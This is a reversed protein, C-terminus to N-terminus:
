MHFFLIEDLCAYYEYDECVYLDCLERRLVLERVHERIDRSTLSDTLLQRPAHRFWDRYVAEYDSARTIYHNNVTTPYNGFAINVQGGPRPSVM